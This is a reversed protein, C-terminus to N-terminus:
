FGAAAIGETHKFDTGRGRGAGPAAEHLHSGSHYGATGGGAEKYEAAAPCKSKGQNKGGSEALVAEWKRM